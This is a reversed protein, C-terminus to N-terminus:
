NLVAFQAFHESFANDTLRQVDSGDSDMIYIDFQGGHNITFTIRSGDLSYALFLADVGITVQNSGDVNMTMTGARGFVIKTSDPNFRPNGNDQSFNTLRQQNTGDPNMTMVERTGTDMKEAIFLVSAGDHSFSHDFNHRDGNALTETLRTQDTGDPNMSYIEFWTGGNLPSTSDRSTLFLIQSGDPGFIPSADIGTDTTLQTQGSGDSNMIFIDDENPPSNRQFVIKAGDHSWAPDIDRDPHNTLNTVNSGDSDMVYIEDNGDRDTKFLIKSGDPSVIPSSETEPSATLNTVDTGDLKMTYIDYNGTRNSDFVIVEGPVGGTSGGATGGGAGGGGCGLALALACAWIILARYM